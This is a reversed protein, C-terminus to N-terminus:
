RVCSPFALWETKRSECSGQEKFLKRCFVFRFFSADVARRLIRERYLSEDICSGHRQTLRGTQRRKVKLTGLFVVCHMKNTRKESPFFFCAEFAPTSSKTSLSRLENKRRVTGVWDAKIRLMKQFGALPPRICTKTTKRKLSQEPNM